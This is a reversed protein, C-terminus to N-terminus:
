IGNLIPSYILVLFNLVTMRQILDYVFNFVKLKIRILINLCLTKSASRDEIALNRNAILDKVLLHNNCNFFVALNDAYMYSLVFNCNIAAPLGNVDNIFLTPGLISEQPVGTPVHLMSSSSGNCYVAQMRDALYSEFLNM